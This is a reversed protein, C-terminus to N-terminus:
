DRDAGGELHTRLRALARRTDSKVTGLPLGLEDAIQTQTLDSYYALEVVRRARPSLTELAHALLLRDALRETEPEAHGAADAVPDAGPVPLRQAARYTDFVRYRAIGLLWSALSGRAPDFRDRSRWASVFTEQLCDAALHRDSIARACYTFVLTGFQQWALRLASDDGAVWARVAADDAAARTGAEATGEDANAM